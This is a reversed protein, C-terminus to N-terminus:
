GRLKGVDGEIVTRDVYEYGVCRQRGGHVRPGNVLGAWFVLDELM